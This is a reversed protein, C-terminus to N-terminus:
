SLGGLSKGMDLIYKYPVLRSPIDNKSVFDTPSLKFCSALAIPAAIYLPANLALAAVSSAMGVFNIEMQIKKAFKSVFSEQSVKKLDSLALAIQDFKMAKAHDIDQASMIGQYIADMEARLALLESGRKMKFELIKEIPVEPAPVPLAESIEFLLGRGPTGIRDPMDATPNNRFYSWLTEPEEKTVEAFALVPSENIVDLINIPSAKMIKGNFSVLGNGVPMLSGVRFGISPVLKRTLIKEQSLVDFEQPLMISAFPSDPIEIRDWYLLATRMLDPDLFPARVTTREGEERADCLGAIVVGRKRSAQDEKQM